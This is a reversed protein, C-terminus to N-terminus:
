PHGSTTLLRQSETLIHCFVKQNLVIIRRKKHVNPAGKSSPLRRSVDSVNSGSNAVKLRTQEVVPHRVGSTNVAAVSTMTKVLTSNPSTISVPDAQYVADEMHGAPSIAVSVKAENVAIDLNMIHTTDM